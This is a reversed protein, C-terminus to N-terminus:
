DLRVPRLSTSTARASSSAWRRSGPSRPGSRDSSPSGGAWPEVGYGARAPAPPSDPPIGWGPDGTLRLTLAGWGHFRASTGTWELGRRRQFRRFRTQRAAVGVVALAAASSARLDGGVVVHSDDGLAHALRQEREVFVAEDHKQVVGSRLEEAPGLVLEHSPLHVVQHVELVGVARRERALLTRDHARSLVALHGADVVIREGAAVPRDDRDRVRRCRKDGAAAVAARHEDDPVDGPLLRLLLLPGLPEPVQGPRLPDARGQRLVAEDERRLGDEVQRGTLRHLVLQQDPHAVFPALQDRGTLEKLGGLLATQDPLDVLPDHSLGRLQHARAVRDLDVQGRRGERLAPHCVHDLVREGRGARIRRVEHHLEGLGRQQLVFSPALRNASRM